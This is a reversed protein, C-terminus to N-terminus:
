DIVIAQLQTKTLSTERLPVGLSLLHEIDYGRSSIVKGAPLTYRTSFERPVLTTKEVVYFREPAAPVSPAVDAPAAESSAAQAKHARAM